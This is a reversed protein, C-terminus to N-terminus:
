QLLKKMTQKRESTQDKEIKCENDNLEKQVRRNWKFNKSQIM